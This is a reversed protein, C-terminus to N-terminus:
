ARELVYEMSSILIDQTLPSGVLRRAVADPLRRVVGTAHLHENVIRWGASAIQARLRAVRVKELLDDEKMEGRQAARIFSNEHAPERLTWPASRALFRFTAFAARRGIVLHLPAPAKLRPLHAGAFSLYPATSLYMWGGQALVRRCESLYQVANAVHEIVAHSFVVDFSGSRSPLAQGDARAFSLNDVGRERALRVAADRFRDVLDVGVVTGAEEAFSLPMGGGGCGADLIRGGLRAGTREVFAIVKASRHYEFLAYDYESRFRRSAHDKIAGDDVVRM